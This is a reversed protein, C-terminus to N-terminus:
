EMWQIGLAAAAFPCRRVIFDLSIKQQWCDLRRGGTYEDKFRAEDHPMAPISKPPSKWSLM